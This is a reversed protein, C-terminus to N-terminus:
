HMIDVVDDLITNETQSKGMGKCRTITSELDKCNDTHKRKVKLKNGLLKRLPPRTKSKGCVLVFVVALLVNALKTHLM